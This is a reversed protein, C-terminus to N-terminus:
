NEEYTGSLVVRNKGTRKAHYLATDANEFFKSGSEYKKDYIAAGISLTFHRVGEATQFDFNEFRCSFTSM